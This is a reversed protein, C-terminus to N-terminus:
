IILMEMMVYMNVWIGVMVVFKGVLILLPQIVSHVNGDKKLKVNVIVDM